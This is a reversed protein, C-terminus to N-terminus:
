RGGGKGRALVYAAFSTCTVKNGRRTTVQRITTRLQRRAVLEDLVARLEDVRTRGDTCVQTYIETRASPRGVRRLFALVKESLPRRKM